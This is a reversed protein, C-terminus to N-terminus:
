LKIIKHEYRYSDDVLILTYVGRTLSSIDISPNFNGAEIIEGLQNLLLYKKLFYPSSINIIDNTPNPFCSILYESQITYLNTTNSLTFTLSVVESACSNEINVAFYTFNEQISTTKPFPNINSQADEITSYWEISGTEFLVDKLQNGIEFTQNPILTPSSSPSICAYKAKCLSFASFDSLYVFDSTTISGSEISSSSNFLSIADITSSLYEWKNKVANFGCIKLFDINSISLESLFDSTKWGIRIKTSDGNIKYYFSTSVAIINTDIQNGFEITPDELFAITGFTAENKPLLALPTFTSGQGVPFIVENSIINELYGDVYQENSFIGANMSGNRGLILRGVPNARDTIISGNNGFSLISSDIYIFSNKGIYLAGNNQVQANVWNMSLLLMFLLGKQM